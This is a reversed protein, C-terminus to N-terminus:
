IGSFSCGLDYPYPCPKCHWSHDPIVLKAGSRAYIGTERKKKKVAAVRARVKRLCDTFSANKSVDNLTKKLIATSIKGVLYSTVARPNIETASFTATIERNASFRTATLRSVQVRVM